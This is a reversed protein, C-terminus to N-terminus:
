GHLSLLVFLPRKSRKGVSTMLPSSSLSLSFSLSPPFSRLTPPAPCPTTVPLHPCHLLTPKHPEGPSPPSTHTLLLRHPGKAEWWSSTEHLFTLNPPNSPRSFTAATTSPVPVQCNVFPPQPTSHVFSSRGSTERRWDVGGAAAVVRRECHQWWAAVCAGPQYTAARTTTHCRLTM